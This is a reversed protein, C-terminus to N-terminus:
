KFNLFKLKLFSSVIIDFDSEFDDFLEEVGKDVLTQNEYFLVDNACGPM